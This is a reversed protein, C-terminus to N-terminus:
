ISLPLLSSVRKFLQLKNESSPLPSTATQGSGLNPSSSNLVSSKQSNNNMKPGNAETKKEMMKGINDLDSDIKKTLIDNTAPLGSESDDFDDDENFWMEEEEEMQRQDRRYRSNRLISPVSYFNMQFSHEFKTVLQWKGM